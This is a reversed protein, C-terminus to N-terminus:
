KNKLNLIPNKNKKNSLVIIKNSKHEPYVITTHQLVRTEASVYNNLLSEAELMEDSVNLVEKTLARNKQKLVNDEKLLKGTLKINKLILTRLKDIKKHDSQKLHKVQNMLIYVTEKLDMISVDDQAFASTTLIGACLLIIVKKM